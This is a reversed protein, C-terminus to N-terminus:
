VVPLRRVKHRMMKQTADPVTANQHITAVPSAMHRSVPSQADAGRLCTAMALDRDTIMGVPRCDDVVVIAGVREAHMLRAADALADNPSVALPTRNSLRALSM